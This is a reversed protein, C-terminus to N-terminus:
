QEVFGEFPQVCVGNRQEHPQQSRGHVGAHLDDTRTMDAVGTQVERTVQVDFVASNTDIVVGSKM